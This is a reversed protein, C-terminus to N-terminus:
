SLEKDINYIACSLGHLALQQKLERAFHDRTVVTVDYEKTLLLLCEVMIAIDTSDRLRTIGETRFTHPFSPLSVKDLNILKHLVYQHIFIVDYTKDTLQLKDYFNVM